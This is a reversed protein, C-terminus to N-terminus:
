GGFLARYEPFRDEKLPRRLAVAVQLRSPAQRQSASQMLGKCLSFNATATTRHSGTKYGGIRIAVGTNTATTM